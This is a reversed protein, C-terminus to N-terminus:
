TCRDLARRVSVFLQILVFLQYVTVHNASDAPIAENRTDVSTYVM